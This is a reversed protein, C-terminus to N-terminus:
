QNNLSELAKILSDLQNKSLYKFPEVLSKVDLFLKNYKAEGFYEIEFVNISHDELLINVNEKFDKLDMGLWDIQEETLELTNKLKWKDFGGDGDRSEFKKFDGCNNAGEFTKFISTMFDDNPAVFAKIGNNNSFGERGMNESSAYDYVYLIAVKKNEM